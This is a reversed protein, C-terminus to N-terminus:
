HGLSTLRSLDMIQNLQSFAIGKQLQDATAQPLAITINTNLTINQGSASNVVLNQLSTPTINALLTITGGGQNIQVGQAGVIPHLNLGTAASLAAVTQNTITSGTNPAASPTSTVSNHTVTPAGGADAIATNVSNAAAGAADGAAGVADGVAGAIQSQPSTPSANSGAGSNPAPTNGPNVPSGNNTGPKGGQGNNNGAGSGGGAAALATTVNDGIVKANPLDPNVWTKSQWGQPTLNLTSTMALTGNVSADLKAGFDFTVGGATIFGGREGQLDADSVAQVDAFPDAASGDGHDPEPAVVQEARLPLVAAAQLLLALLSSHLRNTM